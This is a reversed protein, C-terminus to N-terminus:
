FVKPSRRRRGVLVSATLARRGLIERFRALHPARDEGPLAAPLDTDAFLLKSGAGKAGCPYVVFAASGIMEYYIRPVRSTTKPDFADTVIEERGSNYASSFVDDTAVSRLPLVFEAELMTADEGWASQVELTRRDAGLVLVLARRFGLETGFIELIRRIVHGPQHPALLVAEIEGLRRDLRSAREEPTAAKVAPSAGGETATADPEKGPLPGSILSANQCFKSDAPDLNLLSVYRENFSAQVSGLLEPLRAPAVRVTAKYRELLADLAADLGAAPSKAVTACLENSFSALLRLREGDTTPKRTPDAPVMSAAVRESLRWRQALGVGLARLPVGLVQAAASELSTGQAGMLAEVKKHEDPLYHVLLQHGLNHFMACVQAEEPDHIDLSPALRRAIEGSVLAHISLESVERSTPKKGPNRNLTIALATSRVKEFGLFVVARSVNNVRKGLREYYTSNVVRLLKATLAYDKLISGALGSASLPSSTHANQSIETVNKMFAPFDGKTQMKALLKDLTAKHVETSEVTAPAPPADRSSAVERRPAPSPAVVVVPPPAARLVVASPPPVAPAALQMSTPACETTGRAALAFAQTVEDASGPRNEPKKALCSEVIRAVAEPVEPAIDRIPTFPDRIHMMMVVVPSEHAFLPRGTLLEYLIVGLSYLDTRACVDQTAGLAQEPAMHSPTAVIQAQAGARHGMVKAIAFDTVKIRRPAGECVLVNAPKLGAHVIGRAHAYGLAGGIQRVYDAVDELALRPQAQHSGHQDVVGKLYEMVYYPQRDLVGFDLIEVINPHQLSAATRAEALFRDAVDPASALMRGLFKVAVQKGLAPHEARLVAGTCGYGLVASLVFNGVRKGILEHFEPPIETVAESKAATAV